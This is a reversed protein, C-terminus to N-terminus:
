IVRNKLQFVYSIVEAVAQYHEPPISEELEVSAYLARALPPNEIIPVDHEEATERIRKAVNDVGKAVLLPADMEGPEYKLACAFHTPNTIVVTSEPVEQMMRQRAKETRLQRLRAKIQPDGETQKYEERIEQKSMRMKKMHENRQFAVDIVTIILLVALVGGLLRVALYQLEFMVRNMDLGIMHEVQGYFPYMLAFAVIGVVIIKFIGKAFEMISKMSFLREIGKMPSIKSLSPKVPETTFLPGIQVLPGAIAAIVLLILPLALASFVQGIVTFIVHGLGAGEAPIQHAGAIFGRLTDRIQALSDPAFMLIIMTAAFLMLWNNVERSQSVQGKKRAEELKKRTPEETKQSDDTNDEEAM